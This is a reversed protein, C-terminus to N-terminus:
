KLRLFLEKNGSVEGFLNPLFKKKKKKEFFNSM